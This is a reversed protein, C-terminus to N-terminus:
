LKFINKKEKWFFFCLTQELRNKAKQYFFVDSFRFVRQCNKTDTKKTLQKKGNTHEYKPENKTDM